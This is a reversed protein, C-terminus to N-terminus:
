QRNEPERDLEYFNFLHRNTNYWLRAEPITTSRRLDLWHQGIELAPTNQHTDRFHDIVRYVHYKHRYFFSKIADARKNSLRHQYISESMDAFYDRSGNRDWFERPNNAITKIFAGMVMANDGICRPFYRVELRDEAM